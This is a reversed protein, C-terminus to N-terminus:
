TQAQRLTFAVRFAISRVINEFFCRQEDEDAHDEHESKSPRKVKKDVNGTLFIRTPGRVVVRPTGNILLM